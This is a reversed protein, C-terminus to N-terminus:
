VLPTSVERSMRMLPTGVLFALFVFSRLGIVFKDEFILKPLPSYVFVVILLKSHILATWITFPLKNEPTKWNKLFFWNVFGSIVLGVGAVMGSIKIWSDMKEISGLSIGQILNGALLSLSVFHIIRMLAKITPITSNDSM